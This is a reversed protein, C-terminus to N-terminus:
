VRSISHAYVARSLFTNNLCTSLPRTSILEYSSFDVFSWLCVCFSVIAGGFAGDFPAFFATFGALPALPSPLRRRFRFSVYETYM